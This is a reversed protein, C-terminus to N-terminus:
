MRGKGKGNGIEKFKHIEKQLKAYKELKKCDKDQVKCCAVLAKTLPSSNDPWKYKPAAIELVRTLHQSALSYHSLSGHRRVVTPYYLQFPM